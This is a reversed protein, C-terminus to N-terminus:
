EKYSSVEVSGGEVVVSPMEQIVSPIERISELPVEMDGGSSTLHVSSASGATDSTTATYDESVLRSRDPQADKQDKTEAVQEVEKRRFPSVLWHFWGKPPPEQEQQVAPEEEAVAQEEDGAPEQEEDNEDVEYTTSMVVCLKEDKPAKTWGVKWSVVCYIGLIVAEVLGYFLPVSVAEARETPDDFM